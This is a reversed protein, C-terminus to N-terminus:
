GDPELDVPVSHDSMARGWIFDIQERSERAQRGDGMVLGVFSGMMETGDKRQVLADGWWVMNLPNLSVAHGDPTHLVVPKM